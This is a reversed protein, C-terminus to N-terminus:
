KDLMDQYLSQKERLGKDQINVLHPYAEAVSNIILERPVDDFSGHERLYEMHHKGDNDFEHFISDKLGDFELPSVNMLQCLGSDFAPTAKVWKDELYVETYGHMVFINSKLYELFQPSALHNRVDALGIRAPIGYLRCLAGFLVAKPICYSEGQALCYSASFSQEHTDFTYANYRIDDRVGQYLQLAIERPSVKDNHVLTKGYAKVEPKHYDFYCTEALFQEM